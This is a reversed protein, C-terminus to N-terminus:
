AVRRLAIGEGVLISLMQALPRREAAAMEEIAAKTSPSLRLHLNVHPLREQPPRGLRSARPLPLDTYGLDDTLMEPVFTFWEGRIRLHAFRNHLDYEADGGGDLLRLLKLKAASSTQLASLRHTPLSALGIKVPGGDVAQIMYVAM